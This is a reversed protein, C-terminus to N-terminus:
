INKNNIMKLIKEADKKAVKNLAMENNILVYDGVKANKVLSLNARHTHKASRIIAWEGEIKIIKNPVALCMDFNYWIFFGNAVQRVAKSDNKIRGKEGGPNKESDM